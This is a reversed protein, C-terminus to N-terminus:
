AKKFGYCVGQVQFVDFTGIIVDWKSGEFNDVILANLRRTTDSMSKLIKDGEDCERPVEVGM